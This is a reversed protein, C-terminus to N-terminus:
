WFLLNEVIKFYREPLSQLTRIHKSKIQLLYKPYFNSIWLFSTDRYHLAPLSFNSTVIVKFYLRFVKTMTEADQRTNLDQM